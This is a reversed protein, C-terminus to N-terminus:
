AREVLHTFQTPWCYRAETCCCEFKLTKKRSHNWNSRLVKWDKAFQCFGHPWLTGSCFLLCMQCIGKGCGSLLCLGRWWVVVLQSYGKQGLFESRRMFRPANTYRLTMINHSSKSLNQCGGVSGFVLRLLISHKLMGIKQVVLISHKGWSISKGQQIDHNRTPDFQDIQPTELHNITCLGRLFSQTSVM